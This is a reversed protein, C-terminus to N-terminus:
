LVSKETKDNYQYYLKKLKSKAKSGAWGAKVGVTRGFVMRQEDGMEVRYPVWVDNLKFEFVEGCHIGGYGRKDGRKMRTTFIIDEVNGTM